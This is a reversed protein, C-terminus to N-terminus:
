GEFLGENVNAQMLEFTAAEFCRQFMIRDLPKTLLDTVNKEGKRGM